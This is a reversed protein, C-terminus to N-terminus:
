QKVWGTIGTLKGATYNFTKRYTVGGSIADIYNITSDANYAITQQSASPDFYEGDSAKVGGVARVVPAHTGDGMDDYRQFTEGNGTNFQKDPM